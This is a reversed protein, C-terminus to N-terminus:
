FLEQGFCGSYFSLLHTQLGKGMNVMFGLSKSINFLEDTSRRILANTMQQLEDNQEYPTFHANVQDYVAKSRVYETEIVEDYLRFTDAHDGGVASRIINEVDETSHGLVMYRQLQWDAASTISGAKQIRRVVDSMIEQELMRYKKEVGFSLLSQYEPKM